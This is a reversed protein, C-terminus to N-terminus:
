EKKNKEDSNQNKEPRQVPVLNALELQEAEKLFRECFWRSLGKAECSNKDAPVQKTLVYAFWGGGVRRAVLQVSQGDTEPQLRLWFGNQASPNKQAFTMLVENANEAPPVINVELSDPSVVDKEIDQWKATFQKHQQYYREEAIAVNVLMAQMSLAQIRERQVRTPVIALLVAILLIVAMISKQIPGSPEGIIKKM